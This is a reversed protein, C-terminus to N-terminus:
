ALSFVIIKQFSCKIQHEEINVIFLSNEHEKGEFVLKGNQVIKVNKDFLVVSGNGTISNVSM